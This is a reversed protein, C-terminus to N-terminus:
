HRFHTGAPEDYRPANSSFGALPTTSTCSSGQRWQRRHACSHHITEYTRDEWRQTGLFPWPVAYAISPQWWCVHYLSAWAASVKTTLQSVVFAARIQTCTCAEGWASTRSAECLNTPPSPVIRTSGTTLSLSSEMWAERTCWRTQFWSSISPSLTPAISRESM